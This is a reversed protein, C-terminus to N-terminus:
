LKPSIIQIEEELELNFKNKVKTKILKILKMVDKAQGKGLNVIFNAHIESVKVGGVRKGKLGCREILWAAPIQGKKNFEKLEPSKKLLKQKKIKLKQNKFISGASPFNLPQIEKRLNLYEKIKKKIEKKNSKKLQFIASLIILNPKRKFISERYDFRCDKSKITKLKKDKIDYVEIERVIDEISSGFAGANGRIAGGVTGPINIVWELGTLNNELASKALQGLLAGAEAYIVNDKIKLKENKIKIVLGNYGDDSVLINSGKGLIFLPLKLKKFVQVAKILDKKNRAVLFYKAPGGIKFTTYDKLSVNTKIEPLEKKIKQFIRREM